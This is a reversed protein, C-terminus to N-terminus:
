LLERIYLVVIGGKQNGANAINLTLKSGKIYGLGDKEAKYVPGTVGLNAGLDNVVDFNDDDTITMDYAATPTTTTADPYAIFRVIQGSYSGATPSMVVGSDTSLWDWMVKRLPARAGATDETIVVIQATM